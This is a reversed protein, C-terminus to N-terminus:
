AAAQQAKEMEAAVEKEIKRREQDDSDLLGVMDLLVQRVWPNEKWKEDLKAALATVNKWDTEELDRNRYLKYFDYIDKMARSVPIKAASDMNSLLGLLVPHYKYKQLLEQLGVPNKIRESVTAPFCEFAEAIANKSYGQKFLQRMVKGRSKKEMKKLSSDRIKRALMKKCLPHEPGYEYLKWAETANLGCVIAIM